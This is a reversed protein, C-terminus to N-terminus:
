ILILTGLFVGGSAALVHLPKWCFYYYVCEANQKLLLTTLLKNDKYLWRIM